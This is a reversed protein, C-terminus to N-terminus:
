DFNAHQLPLLNTLTGIDAPSVIGSSGRVPHMWIYLPVHVDTTYEVMRTGSLARPPHNPESIM